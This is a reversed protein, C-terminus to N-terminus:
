EPDAHAGREVALLGWGAEFAALASEVRRILRREQPTAAAIQGSAVSDLVRRLVHSLEPCHCWGPCAEGARRPQWGDQVPVAEQRRTGAGVQAARAAKTGSYM